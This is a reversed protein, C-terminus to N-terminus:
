NPSKPKNAIADAHAKPTTAGLAQHPRLVNYYVLYEFLEKEFHALDDFTTGDILEDDLTRWFREIKGNTQPRYPRTYRHRIGLELLMAEFPHDEASKPAALEAANDTLIEEFRLGYSAHLTNILKLAKFMVPLAKRSTVLEAWALRSCGDLLSIVFAPRDPPMLFIDRPLQHLDLHGMEGLRTKIIRRKEQVMAPSKRNLGHQRLRRYITSPSPVEPLLRKLAAFIEYRNLGKRRQELIALVIEDTESRLRWKPGRRRPLLDEPSGSQLYRNYYKRFTQSCTGHHRYFAGVTAFHESRGAKVAEYEPILFRWKQLYNREITRDYSNDRM